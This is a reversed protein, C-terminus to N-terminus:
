PHTKSRRLRDIIKLGPSASALAHFAIPASEMATWLLKATPGYFLACVTGEARGADIRAAVLAVANDAKRERILADEYQLACAYLLECIAVIDSDGNVMDLKVPQLKAGEMSLGRANAGILNLEQKVVSASNPITLQNPM